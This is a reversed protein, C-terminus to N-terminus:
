PKFVTKPDPTARFGNWGIAPTSIKMANFAAQGLPPEETETSLTKLASVMAEKNVLLAAMADARYERHRSYSMLVLNGILTLCCVIVVKAIWLLWEIAVSFNDSFLNIARMLQLPWSCVIVVSSIMGQLVAMALM